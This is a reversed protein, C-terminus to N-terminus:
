KPTTVAATAPNKTNFEVIFARTIDMADAAYVFPVQSGDIIININHAKAYTELAKGIDDNLPQFIEGRRKNYLAQGDEAKRQYDKKLQELQDSKARISDASVVSSAAQTKSLEDQLQTIKAELQTIETQRPQFERNLTGLLIGFRAIGIKSDLFAESYIVAIKSDPVNANAPAATTTPAPQTAAPKPQTAAPRTQALAPVVGLVALFVISVFFRNFKM